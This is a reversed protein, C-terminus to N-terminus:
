RPRFFQVPPFTVERGACRPNSDQRNVSWLMGRSRCAAYRHYDIYRQTGRSNSRTDGLRPQPKSTRCARMITVAGSPMALGPACIYWKTGPRSSSALNSNHLSLQGYSRKVHLKTPLPHAGTPPLRSDVDSAAALSSAVAIFLREHKERTLERSLPPGCSYQPQLVYKVRRWSHLSNIIHPSKCIVFGTSEHNWRTRAFSLAPELALPEIQALKTSQPWANRYLRHM